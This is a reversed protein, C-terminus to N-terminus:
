GGAARQSKKILVVVGTLALVGVGILTMESADLAGTVATALDGASANGAFLLAAPVAALAGFATKFRSVTNM